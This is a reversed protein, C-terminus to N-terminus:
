MLKRHKRVDNRELDCNILSGRGKASLGEHNSKDPKEDRNYQEVIDIKVPYKLTFHDAGM